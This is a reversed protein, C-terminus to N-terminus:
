DRSSSPADRYGEDRHQPNGTVPEGADRNVEVLHLDQGLEPQGLWAGVVAALQALSGQDSALCLGGNTRTPTAPNSGVAGREWLSHAVLSRWVGHVSYHLKRSWGFGAEAM